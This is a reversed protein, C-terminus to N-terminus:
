QKNVIQKLLDGAARACNDAQVTITLNVVKGDYTGKITITCEPAENSEMAETVAVPSAFLGTATCAVVMMMVIMKKMVLENLNYFQQHFDAGAAAAKCFM